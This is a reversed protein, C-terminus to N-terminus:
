ELDSEEVEKNKKSKAELKPKEVSGASTPLIGYKQEEFKALKKKEKDNIQWPAAGKWHTSQPQELDWSRWATFDQKPRKAIELGAAAAISEILEVAEVPNAIYYLSGFDGRLSIELLGGSTGGVSISRARDRASKLAALENEEHLKQIEQRIKSVEEKKRPAM